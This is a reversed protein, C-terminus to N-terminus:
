FIISDYRQSFRSLTRFKVKGSFSAMKCFHSSPGTENLLYSLEANKQKNLNEFYARINLLNVKINTSMIYLLLNFVSNSPQLSNRRVYRAYNNAADEKGAVLQDPHFLQRYTGCRVEDSILIIFISTDYLNSPDTSFSNIGKEIFDASRFKWM